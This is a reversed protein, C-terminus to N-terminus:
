ICSSLGQGQGQRQGQGQGQEQGLGQGKEQRGLLGRHGM